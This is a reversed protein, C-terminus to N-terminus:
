YAYMYMMFEEYLKQLEDESLEVVPAASEELYEMYANIEEPELAMREELRVSTYGKLESYTLRRDLEKVWDVSYPTSM